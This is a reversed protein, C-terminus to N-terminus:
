RVSDAFRIYMRGASWIAKTVGQKKNLVASMWSTSCGAERAFEAQTTKTRKLGTRLRHIYDDQRIDHLWQATTEHFTKGCYICRINGQSSVESLNTSNCFPCNMM